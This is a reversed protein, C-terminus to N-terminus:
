EFVRMRLAERMGRAIWDLEAKDGGAILCPGLRKGLDLRLDATLRMNVSLGTLTVRVAVVDRAPWTQVPSRLAAASVLMVQGDRVGVITPRTAARLQAYTLLGFPASGIAILLGWAGVSMSRDNIAIVLVVMAVAVFLGTLAGLILVSAMVRELGEPPLTFTIGGDDHRECVARSGIPQDAIPNAYDIAPARTSM